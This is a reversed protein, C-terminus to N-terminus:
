RGPLFSGDLALELNGNERAIADHITILKTGDPFTGEVQVTHLLHPVAPLVQRRGLLQKGTDMLEAVSKEGDHVFTLIQGCCEFVSKPNILFQSYVAMELPM